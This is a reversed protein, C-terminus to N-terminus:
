AGCWRFACDAVRAGVEQLAEEADRLRGLSRLAIAKRFHGKPWSPQLRIVAEADELAKEFASKSAVAIYAASRNSFAKFGTPDRELAQRTIATWTVATDRGRRAGRACWLTGSSRRKSTASRSRSTARTRRRAGGTLALPCARLASPM